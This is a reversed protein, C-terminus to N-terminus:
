PPKLALSFPMWLDKLPMGAVALAAAAPESSVLVLVVLVLLLVTSCSMSRAGLFPDMLPPLAFAKLGVRESLKLNSSGARVQGSRIEAPLYISLRISLYYSNWWMVRM